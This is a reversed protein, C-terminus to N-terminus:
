QVPAPAVPPLADVPPPLPERQRFVYEPAAEAEARSLDSTIQNADYDIMLRAWPVAIKKEGIGLFGGVGIVAAVMQGSDRDLILDSVTGVTEGDPSSVTAGTVWDLRLENAAQQQVLKDPDPAVAAADTDTDTATDATADDVAEGAAADPQPVAEAAADAADGAEQAAEEAGTIDTVAGSDQTSEPGPAPVIPAQALAPAFALPFVLATTLFLKKM